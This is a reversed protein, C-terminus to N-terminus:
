FNVMLKIIEVSNFVSQIMPLLNNIISFISLLFIGTFLASDLRDIVGGHGPFIRGFDKLEYQRKLRSAVLDGIQSFVSALFTVGLIIIFQAGRKLVEDSIILGSLFGQPGSAGFISGFASEYFFAFCTGVICAVCTGGIAGEWTKKPSITPAMKHKGFARGFFYAFADTMCTILFLYVIYRIGMYRLITIAAFGLGAYICVVLSKGVDEGDFNKNLVSNSFLVLAVLILTPLFEIRMNLLQLHESVTSQPNWEVLAALYISLSCLSIIVKSVISYKKKKEYMRILEFSAVVSLGMMLLQFLIFLDSVVVLPIFIALLVAATLSRQKM